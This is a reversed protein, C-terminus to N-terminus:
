GTRTSASGHPYRGEPHRNRWFRHRQAQGAVNGLLGRPITLEAKELAVALSVAPARAAATVAAVVVANSTTVGVASAATAGKLFVREPVTPRAAPSSPKGAAPKSSLGASSLRSTGQPTGQLSGQLTGNQADPQKSALGGPNRWEGRGWQRASPRPYRVRTGGDYWCRHEPQHRSQARVATLITAGGTWALLDTPVSWRQASGYQRNTSAWGGCHRGHHQGTSALLYNSALGGNSGNALSYGDVTVTKGTGVSADSFSAGGHNLILTENGVGTTVVGWNRMTAVSNGDFEKNAVLGTVVVPRQNITLPGWRHLSYNNSLLAAPFSSTSAQM